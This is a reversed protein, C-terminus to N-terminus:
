LRMRWKTNGFLVIKCAALHAPIPIWLSRWLALDPVMGTPCVDPGECVHFSLWANCRHPFVCYSCAVNQM